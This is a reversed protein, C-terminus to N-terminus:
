SYLHSNPWFRFKSLEAGRWRRRFFNPTSYRNARICGLAPTVFKSVGVELVKWPYAVMCGCVYIDHERLTVAAGNLRTKRSDRMVRAVRGCSSAVGSSGVM